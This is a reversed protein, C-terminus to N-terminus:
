SAASDMRKLYKAVGTESSAAVSPLNKLYKAVGTEAVAAAAGPLNKLYKAVGTEAAGSITKLYRSVGTEGAVLPVAAAAATAIEPASGAKKGFRKSAFFGILAIGVVAGLLPLNDSVADDQKASSSAPAAVSPSAASASQAPERGAKGADSSNSSTSSKSAASPDQYLVEAKFEAPYKTHDAAAPKAPTAPAAAPAEKGIYDKDQYVVSPEFSPPYTVAGAVPSALVLASILSKALNKNQM